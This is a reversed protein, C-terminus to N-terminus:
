AVRGYLNPNYSAFSSIRVTAGSHPAELYQNNGLYIAVHHIGAVSGDTSWFVLDGRRLQSRSVATVARYQDAAVRPLAVGAHRFAQQVLGSCDWSNPGTGGWAYPDGLQAMAYAIASGTTSSDPHSPAAGSSNNTPTNGTIRQYKDAHSTWFWGGNSKYWYVRDQADWGPRGHFVPATTSPGSATAPRGTHALYTDYHRTWRWWGTSDKYWYKSGNWGAHSPAPEASATGAGLGALAVAGMAVAVTARAPSLWSTRGNGTSSRSPTTACHPCACGKPTEESFEPIPM